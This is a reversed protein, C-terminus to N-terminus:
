CWRAPSPAWYGRLRARYEDPRPTSTCMPKWRSGPSANAPSWGALLEPDSVMLGALATTAVPGPVLAKAAEEVMACLDEISGGAGGRDEPVAVGFLGLEALGAFVPRWADPDGHETAEMARSAATAAEGSASTRAWDRVLERAAFQEDTVTAVM